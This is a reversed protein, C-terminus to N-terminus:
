ESSNLASVWTFLHHGKDGMGTTFPTVWHELEEKPGLQRYEDALGMFRLIEMSRANTVDMKPVRITDENQEVLFSPTALQALRLALLMGVPGAGVIVVPTDIDTSYAM